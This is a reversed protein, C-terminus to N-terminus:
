SKALSRKLARLTQAGVIGDATLHVSQQYRQVAQRTASGYQGDVTGPAYGLQELARQLVKVQDGSDGPKLTTTPAAVPSASTRAPTTAPTTQATETQATETSAATSSPSGGGGGFVGGIALGIVLAVVVLALALGQRVRVLTIRSARADRRVGVDGSLWDEAAETPVDSTSQVHEADASRPVTEGEAFWDDLDQDDGSWRSVM